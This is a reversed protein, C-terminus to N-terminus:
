GTPNGVRQAHVGTRLPLLTETVRDTAARCM